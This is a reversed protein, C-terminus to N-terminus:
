NVMNIDDIDTYDLPENFRGSKNILYFDSLSKDNMNIVSLAGGNGKTGIFVKGNNISSNSDSWVSTYNISTGAIIHYLGILNFSNPM